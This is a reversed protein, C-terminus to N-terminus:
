RNLIFAYATTVVSIVTVLVSAYLVYRRRTLAAISALAIGLQAAMSAYNMLDKQALYSMSDNMHSDREATKDLAAKKVAPQRSRIEQDLKALGAKDEASLPNSPLLQMEVIHGKVSEAQYEAWADSSQDQALIAQNSEYIAQNTLKTSYVTLFGTLAALAGTIMAAQGIWSPADPDDTIAKPPTDIAAAVKKATTVIKSIKGSM